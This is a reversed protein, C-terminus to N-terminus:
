QAVRAFREVLQGLELASRSFEVAEYRDQRCWEDLMPKIRVAEDVVPDSGPKYENLRILLEVEKHMSYAQRLYAANNLGHRDMLSTAV